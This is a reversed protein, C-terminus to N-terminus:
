ILNPFAEPNKLFYELKMCFFEWDDTKVKLIIFLFDIKRSAIFIVFMLDVVLNPLQKKM